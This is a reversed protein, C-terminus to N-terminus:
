RLTPPAVDEIPVAPDVRHQYLLNIEEVNLRKLMGDVARRVHDPRSNLGLKRLGTDLDIDWGFKSAIVVNDRIPAIAEGVLVENTFLGYSEATDFLIVGQDYVDRIVRIAEAKAPSAGYYSAFSMTGFGLVSVTLDGLNRTRM